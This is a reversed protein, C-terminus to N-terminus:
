PKSCTHSDLTEELLMGDPGLTTTEKLVDVAMEINDMVKLSVVNIV